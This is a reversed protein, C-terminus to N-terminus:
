FLQAITQQPNVGGGARTNARGFKAPIEGSANAAIVREGGMIPKM